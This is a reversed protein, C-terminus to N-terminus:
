RLHRRCRHTERGEKDVQHLYLSSVMAKPQDTIRQCCVSAFHGVKGCSRCKKGFARCLERIHWDDGCFQCRRAKPASVQPATRRYQQRKYSSRSVAALSADDSTCQVDGAAPDESETAAFRPSETDRALLTGIENSSEFAACLQLVRTLSLHAGYEEECVRQQM